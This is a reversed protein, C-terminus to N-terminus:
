NARTKIYFYVENELCALSSQRTVDDPMCTHVLHTNLLFDPKRHRNTQKKTGYEIHHTTHMNMSTVYHCM